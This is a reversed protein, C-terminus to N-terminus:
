GECDEKRNNIGQIGRNFKMKEHKNKDIEEKSGIAMEGV